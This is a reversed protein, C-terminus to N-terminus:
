YMIYIRQFNDDLIYNLIIILIVSKPNFCIIFILINFKYIVYKHNVYMWFILLNFKAVLLFIVFL